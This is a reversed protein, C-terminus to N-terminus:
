GHFLWPRLPLLLDEPPALYCALPLDLGNPGLFLGCLSLPLSAALSLLQCFQYFGLLALKSGAM